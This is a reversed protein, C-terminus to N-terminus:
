DSVNKGTPDTDSWDQRGGTPVTTIKADRPRFTSLGVPGVGRARLILWTLTFGAAIISIVCSILTGIEVTMASWTLWIAQNFVQFVWTTISVGSVQPSTMVAIGQRTMSLAQPIVIAVGFVATGVFVDLGVLLGGLAVGPLVTVYSQYAGNRHLYYLMTLVVILGWINPWVMHIEGLKVGHALWGIQGGLGLVWATVSLGRTDKTAVVLRFQPVSIGVVTLAGILIILDAMHM